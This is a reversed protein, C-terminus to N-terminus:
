QNISINTVTLLYIGVKLTSTNTVRFGQKKCYAIADEYSTYQRGNIIYTEQVTM